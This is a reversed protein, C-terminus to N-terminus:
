FVVDVGAGPAISASDLNVSQAAAFQALLVAVIGLSLKEM